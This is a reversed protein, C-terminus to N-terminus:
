ATGVLATNKRLADYCRMVDRVKVYKMQVTGELLSATSIKIKNLGLWRDILGTNISIAQINRNFIVSIKVNFIGHSVITRQPTIIYYQNRWSYYAIVALVLAGIFFFFFGVIASVLVSLWLATTSPRSAYSTYDTKQLFPKFLGDNTEIM